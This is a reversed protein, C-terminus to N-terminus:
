EYYWDIPTLTLMEEGNMMDYVAQPGFMQMASCFGENQEARDYRASRAAIMRDTVIRHRDHQTMGQM